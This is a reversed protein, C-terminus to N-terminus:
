WNYVSEREPQEGRLVALVNKATRVCMERYTEETLAAVHPTILVRESKLLEESPDPPEEELVDAAFGGLRGEQLAAALACQDIVAGRSTNILLAGPKTLALERGGMLHRTRETLRLHISVVDSEKLLEELALREYPVERASRNFYCIHMGFAEALAAVRRGIAGLGVVGLKKGKLETGDYGARAEWRGDAVAGSLACLRRSLALMLMLAHEAVTDTTSGPAYVVPISRERAAELDVNDLGVGCRAVVRLEPCGEMLGRSVRGRGRTLIAVIGEAPPAEREPEEFAAVRHFDELLARAEEHIPELLLITM